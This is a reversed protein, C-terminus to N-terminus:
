MSAGSTIKGVLEGRLGERQGELPARAASRGASDQRPQVSDRRIQKPVPAPGLDSL